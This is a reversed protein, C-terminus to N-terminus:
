KDDKADQKSNEQPKAPQPRKDSKKQAGQLGKFLEEAMRGVSEVADSARLTAKLEMELPRRHSPDEPKDTFTFTWRRNTMRVDVLHKATDAFVQYTTAKSVVEDRILPSGYRRDLCMISPRNSTNSARLQNAGRTQRMMLLVPSQPPQDLPIAYGAVTAPKQWRLKGSQRDLSLLYGTVLPCRWPMPSSFHVGNQSKTAGSLIVLYDSESAMVWMQRIGKPIPEGQYRVIPKGDHVSIVTVTGDRRAIAM